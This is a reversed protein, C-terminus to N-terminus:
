NRIAQDITAAPCGSACAIFANGLTGASVGRATLAATPCPWDYALSAMWRWSPMGSDSSNGENVGAINVPTNLDNTLVNKRNHTALGRLTLSGTWGESIRALAFVIVPKSTWGRSRRGRLTSRRSTSSISSRGTATHGRSPTASCGTDGTASTSWTRARCCSSRFGQYQAALLRGVCQLGALGAAAARPRFRDHGGKRTYPGPNGHSFIRIFATPDSTVLNIVNNTGSVGGSFLELFEACPYRALPDRPNECRRRARLHVGVKCTTVYGSTSYSTARVAANVDMSRAFAEDEALPVVTEAFGESVTYGGFSPMYNGLLGGTAGAVGGVKESRHEAGFAFSIPGAWNRVPAGHM